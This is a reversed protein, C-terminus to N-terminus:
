AKGSVPSIIRMREGRDKHLVIAQLSRGATFGMSNGWADRPAITQFTEWTAGGVEGSMDVTAGKTKKHIHGLYVYRYDSSGWMGPEKAAMINVMQHPKAMDGHAAGIMVKGFQHFFFPSPSDVITVHDHGHFYAQLATRLAITGYPDHNGPISVVVVKDHKQLALHIAQLMIDVGTRMVRAYRTDVDLINGSKLTRKENNDSHFFDGLNLIVATETPPADAVLEHIASTFIRDATDVDYDAGVEQAWSYMGLHLDAIVYVTTRDFDTSGDIYHQKTLARGKFEKFAEQLGPVPDGVPYQSRTKVWQAPHKESAAHYTSTGIVELGEPVGDGVIRPDLGRATARALRQQVTARALGMREATISQNRGSEEFIQLTLALEEDTLSPYQNM